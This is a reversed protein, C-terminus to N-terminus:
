GAGAVAPVDVGDAAVVLRGAPGADPDAIRMETNTSQEPRAATAPTTWAECSPPPLGAEAGAVGQQQRDGRRDDAAGAQDASAAPDHVRHEASQHDRDDWFPM